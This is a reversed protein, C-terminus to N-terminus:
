QLDLLEKWAGRHWPMFPAVDKIKDNLAELVEPPLPAGSLSVEGEQTVQPEPLPAPSGIVVGMSGIGKVAQGTAGDVFMLAFRRGPDCPDDGKPIMSYLISINPGYLPVARREAREGPEDPINLPLRWGNARARTRTPNGLADVGKLVMFPVSTPLTATPATFGTNRREALGNADTAGQTINQTVLQNVRIPYSSSGEYDRIGYFAQQPIASTRDDRGLYKGTGIVLMPRRTVPDTMATPNFVIPQDGAKTAGGDGYTTFMLDVKWNAPDADSFDFRWLNGALDGAYARDDIQDNDMDVVNPPSLGYTKFGTPRTQPAIDTRVERILRGTELDIFLMSTHKAAPESADDPQAADKSLSPFYGSSALVVWKNQYRIRAVNTSDYTYGLSPCSTAGPACVPDPSPVSAPSRTPGSNFEWKIKGAVSAESESAQPVDTVDLAFIGRGGLRLSGIIYTRWAGNIFADNEIPKVDVGPTLGATDATSLAIRRNQILTSPVYAWSEVGTSADFAHLMGDDSGVYVM